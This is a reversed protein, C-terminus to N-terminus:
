KESVRLAKWQASFPLSGLHEPPVAVSDNERSLQPQSRLLSSHRPVTLNDAACTMHEVLLCEIQLNMHYGRLASINGRYSVERRRFADEGQWAMNALSRPNGDRALTDPIYEFAPPSSFRHRELPPDCPLTRSTSLSIRRSSRRRVGLAFRRSASAQSAHQVSADGQTYRQM